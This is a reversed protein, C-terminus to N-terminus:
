IILTLLRTLSYLIWPEFAYTNAYFLSLQMLMNRQFVLTLLFYEFYINLFGPFFSMLMLYLYMYLYLGTYTFTYTFLLNFTECCHRSMCNASAPMVFHIQLQPKKVWKVYISLNKWLLDFFDLWDQLIIYWQMAWCNKQYTYDDLSKDTCLRVFSLWKNFIQDMKPTCPNLHNSWLNVVCMYITLRKQLSAISLCILTFM